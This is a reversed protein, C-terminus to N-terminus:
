LYNELEKKEVLLYNTNSKSVGAFSFKATVVVGPNRRTDTMIVRERIFALSTLNRPLHKKRVQVIRKHLNGYAMNYM